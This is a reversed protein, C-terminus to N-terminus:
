DETIFKIQVLFSTKSYIYLHQLNVYTAGANHVINYIIYVYFHAYYVIYINTHTTHTHTQIHARALTHQYMFNHKFFMKFAM